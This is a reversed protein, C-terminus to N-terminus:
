TLNRSAKAPAGFPVTATLKVKASELDDLVGKGAATLPLKVTRSAGAALDLNGKSGLKRAGKKAVLAVDQSATTATLKLRLKGGSVVQEVKSSLVRVKVQPRAVPTGPGVVLEAAMTSGHIVCIFHYTGPSLYQTGNMPSQAGADIIETRFLKEGDPGEGSATVDHSTDGTNNFTAVVGADITFSSKSFATGPAATIQETVALAIGTGLAAIATAALALTARLATLRRM